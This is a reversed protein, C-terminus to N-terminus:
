NKVTHHTCPTSSKHSIIIESVFYVCVSSYSQKGIFMVQVSLLLNIVDTVYVRSKHPLVLTLNGLVYQVYPFFNVALFSLYVM